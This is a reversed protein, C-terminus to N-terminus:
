LPTEELSVVFGTKHKIAAEMMKLDQKEGITFGDHQLVLPNGTVEELMALLIESEAGQLIHSMIKKKSEHCSIQRGADNVIVGSKKTLESYYQIIAGESARLDSILGKVIEIEMLRQTVAAGLRGEIAGTVNGCFGLKAGYILSILVFKADDISIGALGAIENRLSRKNSIYHDVAQTEIGVRAAMQALLTWHCNEIDIDYAGRLAMRRVEGVCRQLNVHGLAYFRGARSESYITPIVCLESSLQRSSALIAQTQEQARRIRRLGREYGLDVIMKKWFNILEPSYNAVNQGCVLADAAENLELLTHICVPVHVSLLSKPFRTKSGTATLSRVAGQPTRFVNGSGDVHAPKYLEHKEKFNLHVESFFKELIDRCKETLRWGAAYRGKRAPLVLEFWGLDANVQDFRKATRFYLKKANFHIPTLGEYGSKHPICNSFLSWTLVSLGTRERNSLNLDDPLRKNIFHDFQIPRFSFFSSLSKGGHTNKPRTPM